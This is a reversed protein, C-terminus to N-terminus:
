TCTLRTCAFQDSCRIGIVPLRRFGGQHTPIATPTVELRQDARLKNIFSRTSWVRRATSRKAEAPQKRLTASVSPIVLDYLGDERASAQKEM